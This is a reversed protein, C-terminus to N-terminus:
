SIGLDKLALRRLGFEERLTEFIRQETGTPQREIEVPIRTTYPEPLNPASVRVSLAGKVPGEIDPEPAVAFSAMVGGLGHRLELCEGTVKQSASEPEDYFWQFDKGVIGHLVQSHHMAPPISQLMALTQNLAVGTWQAPADPPPPFMRGPISTMTARTRGGTLRIPGHTTIDVRPNTATAGGINDIHLQFRVPEATLNLLRALAHMRTGLDDLWADYRAWYDKWEGDRFLTFGQGPDPGFKKPHREGVIKQVREIFEASVVAPSDVVGWIRAVDDKRQRAVVRIDPDRAALREFKKELENLRKTAADPEPQLAWEDPIDLCPFDMDRATLMPGTDGTLISVPVGLVAASAMAEEVMRDDNVTLDLRRSKERDPDLRPGLEISVTPRAERLVVRNEPSRVVRKFVSSTTRARQARRAKGDGKFDDIEDQVTRVVLLRVEEADTVLSWDVQDAPLCQLFFNSDPVVWITNVGAKKTKAM